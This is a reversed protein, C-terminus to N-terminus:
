EHYHILKCVQHTLAEVKKSCCAIQQPNIRERYLLEFAACLRSSSTSLENKDAAEINKVCKDRYILHKPTKQYM